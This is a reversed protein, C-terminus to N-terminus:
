GRNCAPIHSCPPGKADNPSTFASPKQRRQNSFRGNSSDRLVHQPKQRRGAARGSRRQLFLSIRALGQRTESAWPMGQALGEVLSGSTGAFQRLAPETQSQCHRTCTKTAEFAKSSWSNPLSPTQMFSLAWPPGAAAASSAARPSTTDAPCQESPTKFM